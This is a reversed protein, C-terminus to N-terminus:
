TKMKRKEIADLLIQADRDSRNLEDISLERVSSEVVALELSTVWNLLRKQLKPWVKTVFMQEQALFLPSVLTSFLYTAGKTEPISIFLATCMKGYDYFPVWFIFPEVFHQVCLFAAFVVWYSLLDTFQQRNKEFLIRLNNKQSQPSSSQGSNYVLVVDDTQRARLTLDSRAKIAKFSNYAGLLPGLAICTQSVISTMTKTRLYVGSASLTFPPPEKIRVKETKGFFLFRGGLISRVDGNSERYLVVSLNCYQTLEALAAQPLVQNSSVKGSCQYRFM